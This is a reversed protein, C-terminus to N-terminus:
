RGVWKDSAAGVIIACFVVFAIIIAGSLFADLFFSGTIM